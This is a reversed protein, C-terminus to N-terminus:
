VEEYPITCPLNMYNVNEEAMAPKGAEEHPKPPAMADFLPPPTPPASAPPPPTTTTAHSASSGM